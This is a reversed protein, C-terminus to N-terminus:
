GKIKLPSKRKKPSKGKIKLPSVEEFPFPSEWNSPFSYEYKPSFEYPSKYAYVFLGYGIIGFLLGLHYRYQMVKYVELWMTVQEQSTLSEVMYNKKPMLVYFFYAVVFVFATFMCSVSVKGTDPLLYICLAGILTGLLLGCFFLTIREKSIKKFVDQQYPDLSNYFAQIKRDKETSLMVFLMAAVFITAILCYSVCVM